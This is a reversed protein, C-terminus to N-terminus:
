IQRCNVFFFVFVSFFYVFLKPMYKFRISNRFIDSISIQRMWVNPLLDFRFSQTIIASCYFAHIHSRTNDTIAFTHMKPRCKYMSFDSVNTYWIKTDVTVIFIFVYLVSTLNQRHSFHEIWEYFPLLIANFWDGSSICTFYSGM